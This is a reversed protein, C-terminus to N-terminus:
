ARELLGKRSWTSLYFSSIRKPDTGTKLGAKLMGDTAQQVTAPAFKTSKFFDLLTGAQGGIKLKKDKLADTPTYMTEGRTERAKAVGAAKKVVGEKVHEFGNEYKEKAAEDREEFTTKRAELVAPNVAEYWLRQVLRKVPQEAVIPDLPFAPLELYTLLATWAAEPWADVLGKGHGWRGAGLTHELSSADVPLSLDGILLRCEIRPADKVVAIPQVDAPASPSAVSLRPAKKAPLKVAIPKVATPKVATPKVATPKVATPKVATPKVTRKSAAVLQARQTKTLPKVKKM